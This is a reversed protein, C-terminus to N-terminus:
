RSIDPYFSFIKGKIKREGCADNYAYDKRNNERQNSSFLWFIIIKIKEQGSTVANQQQVCGSVLFISLIIIGLILRKM